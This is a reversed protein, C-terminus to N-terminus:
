RILTITASRSLKQGTDTEAEVFVVYVGEPCPQGDCTGDWTANLADGAAIEVGWRNYIRWRLKRLSPNAGVFWVDNQGDGNPSFATPIFLTSPVVVLIQRIATDSCPQATLRVTYTGPSRYTHQQTASASTLVTGDGFDWRYATAPPQASATFTVPMGLVITDESLSLSLLSGEATFAFYPDSFDSWAPLSWGGAIGTSNQTPVWLAAKWQAPRGFIPDGGGYYLRIEAPDSGELRNVYHDYLPNVECINPPRLSRDRGQTTPDANSLRAAFRHPASTSPIIEVPRYRPPTDGGVPFLYTASRDTARELYGGRESSVFGNRRTIADPAKARVAVFRNQTRLKADGLELRADVYLDTELVKSDNGELRLTDTRIPFSGKLTQTTGNLILTGPTSGSPFLLGDDDNQIDGRIYVRGENIFTGGRRNEWGGECFVIGGAELRVPLGTNVVLPQAFLGSLILGHACRWM